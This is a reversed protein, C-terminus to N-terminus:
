LEIEEEQEDLQQEKIEEVKLHFVLQNCSKTAKENKVRLSDNVKKLKEIKEQNSSILKRREEIKKKLNKIQNEIKQKQEQSNM